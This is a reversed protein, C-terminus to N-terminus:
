VSPPADLAASAAANAPPAPPAPQALVRRMVVETGSAGRHLEVGDMVSRILGLGRGRVPDRADAEQWGGFDRVSLILEDRGLVAALVFARRGQRTPHEVANACAESQALLIDAADGAGVSRQALWSRLLRRAAAVAAPHRPLRLRLEDDRAPLRPELSQLSVELLRNSQERLSTSRRQLRDTRARVLRSRSCTAQAKDLAALLDGPM